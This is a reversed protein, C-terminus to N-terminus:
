EENIVKWQSDTWELTQVLTVVSEKLLVYEIQRHPRFFKEKVEIFGDVSLRGLYFNFGNTVMLHEQEEHLNVFDEVYKTCKGGGAFGLEVTHTKLEVVKQKSM